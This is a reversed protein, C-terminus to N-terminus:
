RLHKKLKEALNRDINLLKRYIERANRNEQLNLYTIALNYYANGFDPRIEVAKLLPDLAYDYKKLQMYSAGILYWADANDPV